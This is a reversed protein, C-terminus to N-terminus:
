KELRLALQAGAMAERFKPSHRHFQRGFEMLYEGSRQQYTERLAALADRQEKSMGLEEQVAPAVLVGFPGLLFLSERLARVPRSNRKPTVDATKGRQVEVVESKRALATQSLCALVSSSTAVIISRTLAARMPTRPSM